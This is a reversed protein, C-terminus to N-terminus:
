VREQISGAITFLAGLAMLVVAPFVFMHLNRGVDFLDVLYVMAGLCMLIGGAIRPAKTIPQEM